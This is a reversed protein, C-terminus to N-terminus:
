GQEPDLRTHWYLELAEVIAQRSYAASQPDHLLYELYAVIAGAQQGTFVAFRECRLEFKTRGGRMQAQKRTARSTPRQQDEATLGVTLYFYPYIGGRLQGDLDALLYAPLYFRFAAPTFFALAPGWGTEAENLLDISLTRWDTRGQFYELTDAYYEWSSGSPVIEDDGPYPVDAFAERILQKITEVAPANM